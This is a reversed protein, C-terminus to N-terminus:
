QVMSHWKQAIEEATIDYIAGTVPSPEEYFFDPLKDKDPGIGAARNFAIEKKLTEMGMGFMEEMSWPEGFTASLVKLYDEAVEMVNGWAFLCMHSDATVMISQLEASLELQGAKEHPVVSPNGLTSGSTHDAGMPSIAYTVGTGKLNRPEYAALAQGKVTPIHRAGLKKGLREAGLGFDDALSGRKRITNLLELVADYNGWPMKGCDLYIGLSVAFEITDFGFDDCFRDIRAVIETDFIGCNPGALEATEYEYGGTLFTGDKEYIANSCQIVCGPQCSHGLKGGNEQMRDMVTQVNYQEQERETATDGNFNRYPAIGSPITMGLLVVTGSSFVNDKRIAQNVTKATAKYAEKDAYQITYPHDAQQLVIAKIGKSAMVAGGGGRAAARCPRELGMETVMISSNLYGREGAPGVSMFGVKGSFRERLIDETEYTGKGELYSAEEVRISGDAAIVLINCEPKEPKDELIIAKIGQGSLYYGATGGVNAEKIGGTLPSKFGVSLRYTSSITTGAPIMGAVVLKNGAGFPDAKPDVESTIIHSTLIRGGMKPFDGESSYVTERTRTNIRVIKKMKTDERGEV